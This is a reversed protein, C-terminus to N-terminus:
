ETGNLARELGAALNAIARVLIGEPNVDLLTLGAAEAVIAQEDFPLVAILNLEHQDCFARVATEETLTRVKNAVTYIRPVGLDAALSHVRRGTELARYYPEVVILLADAHEITGRGVHELGAEMDAIVVPADVQMLYGMIGRANAHASCRCGTGAHDVTGMVLLTVNDPAIVGYHAHVEGEENAGQNGGLIINISLPAAHRM